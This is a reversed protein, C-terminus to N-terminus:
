KNQEKLTKKIKQNIKKPAEDTSVQGAIASSITKNINNWRIDSTGKVDWAAGTTAYQSGYKDVNDIATTTWSALKDGYQKTLKDSMPGYGPIAEYYEGWAPLAFDEDTLLYKNLDWAAKKKKDSTDMISTQQEVAWMHGGHEGSVGELESIGVKSGYASDLKPNPLLMVDGDGGQWGFKVDSKVQRWRNATPTAYMFSAVRDTLMLSPIEEDGRSASKKSSFKKALNICNKVMGDTKPADKHDSGVIIDPDKPDGRIWPDTGGTYATRAEGWYSELDNYVGTEEWAIIDQNKDIKELYGYFDSWTALDKKPNSVGAKKFAQVNIGLNTNTHRQAGGSWYDGRFQASEKNAATLNDPMGKTKEYFPKHNPVKGQNFFKLGLAGGEAIAPPNGANVTSSLKTKIDGYSVAQLNVKVSGNKEQFDKMSEQYHNRIDSNEAAMGSIFQITNSGSGGGGDNNGGGGNNDNNGGSSCGALAGLAGTAATAGTGKVFTRRSLSRDEDHGTTDLPM